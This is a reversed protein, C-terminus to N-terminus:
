KFLSFLKPLTLMKEKLGTLTDQKVVMGLKEVEDQDLVFKTKGPKTCFFEVRDDCKWGSDSPKQSLRVGAFCGRVSERERYPVKKVTLHEILCQKRIKRLYGEIEGHLKLPYFVCATIKWRKDKLKSLGFSECTKEAAETNLFFSSFSVSQEDNISRGYLVTKITPMCDKEPYNCFLVRSTKKSPDTAVSVIGFSGVDIKKVGLAQFSCTCFLLVGFFKYLNM